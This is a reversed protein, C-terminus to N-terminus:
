REITLPASLEFRAWWVGALIQDLVPVGLERELNSANECMNGRASLFIGDASGHERFARQALDYFDSTKLANVQAANGAGLGVAGACEIGAAARYFDVLLANVDPAYQTVLLPRRVGRGRLAVASAALASTIPVSGRDATLANLADREAAFGRKASVPVGMVVIAECGEDILVDTAGRMIGIAREQEGPRGNRVNLTVVAVALDPEIAAALDWPLNIVSPCICGFKRM